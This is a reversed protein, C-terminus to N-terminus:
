LISRMAAQVIPAEPYTMLGAIAIAIGYPIKKAVLLSDPIPLGIASIEQFRSRLLLIALTLLGGVFAVAVLFGMLASNLGFWVACATLLKADGGGMVNLAFLAFCGCFVICAALISLNFNHWDLGLVPAAVFFTALMIASVCNPITMTAIDTLAAFALCAPPVFLVLYAIM